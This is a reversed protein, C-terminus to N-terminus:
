LTYRPDPPLASRVSGRAEGGTDTESAVELFLSHVHGGWDVGYRRWQEPASGPEQCDAQRSLPLQTTVHIM